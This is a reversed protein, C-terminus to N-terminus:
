PYAKGEHSEGHCQLSCEGRFTGLDRFELHGAGNPKVIATAFNVLNSNNTSNGQTSAIGHADHCASCPTRLDVIHKKHSKFSQDDLISARDHCTYCLAYASATESINDTTDYRALLLPSFTSGHTGSPGTGGASAGSESAHCDSCYLTSSVTWPSRLSPVSSNHGPGLVPHSSVANLAFELRTNNQVIRRAVAPQRTNGDAHCRFCVEAETGAVAVPSGSTNMGPAQGFNAHTKPATSGGQGMTHPNHCSTCGTHEEVPAPPDVPSATDHPSPKHLDASIDAAGQVSGDHCRLCTQTANAAKLLYPGSPATHPQHCANCTAHGSVTTAGMNHCSLCMQSTTNPAVLFDGFANNHADHCTTCQLEQNADLRLEAPLASPSRLHPDRAALASDFAFSIPHDDRLDTGIRAHGSPMTTVGGAMAIPTERSIVSGLAITGDHCSLCMKSAGTPQGPSADLARSTYISYGDAPMARNWLPKIPSSNHPAHCFICVESESAARVPGTGGASLNHPGGVVSTPQAGAVAALAGALLTGKTWAAYRNSM